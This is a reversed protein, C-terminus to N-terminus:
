APKDQRTVIVIGAAVILAVGAVTRGSMVEDFLLAGFIAAWLIQSYQMPAVVIGPAARYAAIIALYGVFGVVAMAAMLALDAGPMPVYVLPLVLGAVILQALVPYLQMLATREATGTKRILVYNAAGIIAGALASLHGWELTAAGPDLAVIVGGLGLVIASGRVLDIREGMVPISFLAVFIPMTFLIAYCQALPLTAFAYTGFIGTLVVAVCRLAMLGPMKPRLGEESPDAMAYLAAIPVTMLCVFFIIQFPNYGGGLFKISVDVCAFLGMALLGLLAGKLNSPAAAV